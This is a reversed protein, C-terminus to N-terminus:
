VGDEHAQGGAVVRNAEAEGGARRVAEVPDKPRLGSGGGRGEAPGLHPPGPGPQVGLVPEVGVGDEALPGPDPAQEHRRAETAVSELLAVGDSPMEGLQDGPGLRTEIQGTEPRFADEGSGREVLVGAPDDLGDTSGWRSSETGDHRRKERRPRVIGAGGPVQWQAPRPGVTFSSSNFASLLVM